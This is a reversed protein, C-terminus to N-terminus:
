VSSVPLYVAEKPRLKIYNFFFISFCGVDGPFQEYLRVFLEALERLNIKDRDEEPDPTPPCCGYCDGAEEGETAPEEEPQQEPEPQTSTESPVPDAPPPPCVCEDSRPVMIDPLPNLIECPLPEVAYEPVCLATEPDAECRLLVPLM